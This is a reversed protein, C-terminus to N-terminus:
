YFIGIKLCSETNLKQKHRIIKEELLKEKLITFCIDFALLMFHIINLLQYEPCFSRTTYQHINLLWSQLGFLKLESKCGKVTEM